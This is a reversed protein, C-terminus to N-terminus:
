SGRRNAVQKTVRDNISQMFAMHEDENSITIGLGQDLPEFGERALKQLNKLIEEDTQTQQELLRLGARLVESANPYNGAEVQEEVFQDYHDTLDITRTPVSKDEKTM